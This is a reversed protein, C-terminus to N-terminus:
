RVLAKFPHKLGEWSELRGSIVGTKIPADFCVPIRNDDDSFWMYMDTGDNFQESEVLQIGFKVAKVTGIGKITRNERGKYILYIDSVNGGLAFAVHYKRNVQMRSLDVNRAIFLLSMFDFTCRDLSFEKTRKGRNKSNLDAAIHPTPANWLYRYEDLAFYGGEHTDRTFRLPRLDRCSITSRFDERVKFFPDFFKATRGFLRCSYAPQGAYQLSDVTFYGKAVDSNIAGWRYHMAFVLSEGSRFAMRGGSIDKMPLCGIRDPGAARVALPNSLSALAGLLLACGTLTLLRKMM